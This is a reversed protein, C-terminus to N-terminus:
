ELQGVPKMQPVWDSASCRHCRKLYNNGAQPACFLFKFLL